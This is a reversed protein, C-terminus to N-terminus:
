VNTANLDITDSLYWWTSNTHPTLPLYRVDQQIASIPVIYTTGIGFLPKSHYSGNNLPQMLPEHQKSAIVMGANQYIPGAAFRQVLLHLGKIAAEANDNIFHSKLHVSICGAM